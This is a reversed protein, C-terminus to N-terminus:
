ESEHAIIVDKGDERFHKRSSLSEVNGTEECQGGGRECTKILHLHPFHPSM